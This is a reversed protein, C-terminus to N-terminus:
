IELTLLSSVDNIHEKYTDTLETSTSVPILVYAISDHRLVTTLIKAACIADIDYNVFILM